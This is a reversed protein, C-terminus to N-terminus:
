RTLGGGGVPGGIEERQQLDLARLEALEDAVQLLVAQELGDDEVLALDEVAAVAVPGALVGADLRPKLLPAALARGRVHQRQVQMAPVQSLVLEGGDSHLGLLAVLLLRLLGLALRGLV